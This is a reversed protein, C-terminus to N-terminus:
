QPRKASMGVILPYDNDNAELEEPRYDEISLFHLMGTATLVNGYSRVEADFGADALMRTAAQTTFRYYDGWRDADYRMVQSIGPVTCLLTGGPRLAERLTELAARYDYIFHLTQTLIICDFRERPITKSDTLDGVITARPNTDDVHLVDAREVASGFRTTYTDEAVELVNGRIAGANDSLFQEIYYRDVCTGRAGGNPSVPQTRRWPDLPSPRMRYRRKAAWRYVAPPVLHKVLTKFAVRALTARRHM